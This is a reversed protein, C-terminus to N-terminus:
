AFPRWNDAAFLNLMLGSPPIPILMPALMRSAVRVTRCLCVAGPLDRHGVGPDADADRRRALAAHLCQGDDIDAAAALDRVQIPRGQIPYGPAIGTARNDPDQRAPRLL